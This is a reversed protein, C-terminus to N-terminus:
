HISIGQRGCGGAFLVRFHQRMIAMEERDALGLTVSGGNSAKRKCIGGGASSSGAAFALPGAAGM